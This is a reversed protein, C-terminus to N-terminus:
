WQTRVLAVLGVASAVQVVLWGRVPASRSGERDAALARGRGAPGVDHVAALHTRGRRGVPRESRRGGRGRPRRRRAAWLARDRLRILAVALAPGLALAWAGLDALVFYWWPRWVHLQRYQERTALLGLPWWFGLLAFGGLVVGAAALAVILPRVRGVRWAVAIPVVAILVLGYSLMLCAGFGVGAALAWRDSVRGPRHLAMVLATVTVSAVGLYFADASTAIWVAAPAIAVFPAASGPRQRM